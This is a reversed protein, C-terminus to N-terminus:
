MQSLLSSMKRLEKLACAATVHGNGVVGKMEPRRQQELATEIVEINELMSRGLRRLSIILNQDITEGEESSGPAIEEAVSDGGGNGDGKNDCSAGSMGEGNSTGFKWLWQLKGSLTRSRKGERGLESSQGCKFSEDDGGGDPFDSVPLSPWGPQAGWFEFDNEDDVTSNSAVSSTELGNEGDCNGRDPSNGENGSCSFKRGAADDRGSNGDSEHTPGLRQLLDDLLNRRVAATKSNEDKGDKKLLGLLRVREAWGSFRKELSGGGRRHSEEEHMVRWKEEWYSEPFIKLPTRPSSPDRLHNVDVALAQLSKAKAVMKGLEADEPFNLLKQLCATANDSALLSSRLQLIMSVAFASVFAGRASNLAGFDGNKDSDRVIRANDCAFIEDWILLLDELSFERGFLVRLWRMSFYQPEVGLEVLHTHLPSDVIALLHYIVASAEIVPAFGSHSVSYPSTSFFEAMAVAGGAGKMLVDFMVYADHEMFKESLVVGLEGEAGYADSLLVITQTTPDLETAASSKRSSNQPGTGDGACEPFKEFDFKYMLDNEQYSFGDFKDAFHDEYAKRVESLREVDVHLVYLLPALVEHMGQRYGYEPHKLCWLLLIRRLMVQCGNTRFYGGREPYLRTLDQDVMRELEANRFFRSWMSDPNQSLPNDMVLDPSNSGDKPLHPDVLLQKRLAAYSRRSNATVRRLDDISASPSSPLIGLDIRWRIGRLDGFRRSGVSSSAMEPTTRELGVPPM